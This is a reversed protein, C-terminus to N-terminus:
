GVTNETSNNLNQKELEKMASDYIIGGVTNEAKSKMMMSVIASIGATVVGGLLVYLASLDYHMWMVIESYIIVEVVWFMVFFVLKKSFSTKKNM